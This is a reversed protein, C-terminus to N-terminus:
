DEGLDELERRLAALKAREAEVVQPPAKALFGENKLKRASHRIGAELKARRAARREIAASLDLQDSPLIEVAGGPVPVTAVPEGGDSSFALRA